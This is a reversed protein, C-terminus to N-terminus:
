EGGGFVRQWWAKRTSEGRGTGKSEEESDTGPSGRAESNESLAPIREFAAALLHDRRRIEEDRTDLKSELSEIREQLAEVLQSNARTQEETHNQVVRSYSDRITRETAQNESLGWREGLEHMM